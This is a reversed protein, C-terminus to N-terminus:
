PPIAMGALQIPSPDPSTSVFCISFLLVISGLVCALSIMENYRNFKVDTQNVHNLEDFATM